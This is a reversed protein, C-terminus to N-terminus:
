RLLALSAGEAQQKCAPSSSAALDADWCPMWPLLAVFDAICLLAQIPWATLTRHDYECRSQRSCSSHASAVADRAAPWRWTASTPSAPGAGSGAGRRGCRRRTTGWRTWSWRGWLARRGLIPAWGQSRFALSINSQLVPIAASSLCLMLTAARVALKSPIGTPMTGATIPGPLVARWAAWYNRFFGVQWRQATNQLRVGTSSDAQSNQVSGRSSSHQRGHQTRVGSGTRSRERCAVLCRFRRQESKAAAHVGAQLVSMCLNATAHSIISNPM